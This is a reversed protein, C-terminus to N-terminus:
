LSYLPSHLKAGMSELQLKLNLPFKNSIFVSDRGALPAVSSVMIVSTLIVIRTIVNMMIVSLTIVILVAVSLGVASLMIISLM